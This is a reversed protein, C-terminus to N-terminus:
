YIRDNSKGKDLAGRTAKLYIHQDVCMGIQFGCAFVSVLLAVASLISISGVDIM